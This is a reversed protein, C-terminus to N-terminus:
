FVLTRLKVGCANTRISTRTWDTLEDTFQQSGLRSAHRVDDFNGRDMQSENSFRFTTLADSTTNRSGFRPPEVFVVQVGARKANEIISSLAQAARTSPPLKPAAVLSRREAAFWADDHLAAVSYIAPSHPDYAAGKVVGVWDHWGTQTSFEAFAWMPILRWCAVAFRGSYAKLHRRIIENDLQAVYRDPRLPTPLTGPQLTSDDLELLLVDCRHRSLYLEWILSQEEIGQGGLSLQLASGGTKEQLRETSIASNLMSSGLVVVSDHRRPGAILFNVRTAPNRRAAFTLVADNLAVIVLFGIIWWLASKM